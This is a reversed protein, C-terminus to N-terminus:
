KIFMEDVPMVEKLLREKACSLCIQVRRYNPKNLIPGIPLAGEKGCADCSHNINGKPDIYM